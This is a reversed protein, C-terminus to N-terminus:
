ALAAAARSWARRSAGAPSSRHAFRMLLDLPGALSSRSRCTRRFIVGHANVMKLRFVARSKSNYRGLNRPNDHRTTKAPFVLRSPVLGGIINRRMLVPALRGAIQAFRHPAGFPNRLRFLLISGSALIM